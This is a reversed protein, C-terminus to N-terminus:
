LFDQFTFAEWVEGVVDEDTVPFADFWASEQEKIAEQIASSSNYENVMETYEDDELKTIKVITYGFDSEMIESVEGDELQYTTKMSDTTAHMTGSTATLDYEEILAEVDEGAQVRALAEEALAKQEAQEEESLYVYNGEEDLLANGSEDLKVKLFVLNEFTGYSQNEVEIEEAVTQELKRIMGIQTYIDTLVERDIGFKEMKDRDYSAIFEDILGEMEKQEEETLTIGEEQAKLYLIKSQRMQVLLQAKFADDMTPYSESYYQSMDTGEPVSMGSLLSLAYYNVENLYIEDGGVSLVLVESPDKGGSAAQAVGSPKNSSKCGALLLAMSLVIAVVASFHKAKKM